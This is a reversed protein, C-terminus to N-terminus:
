VTGVSLVTRRPVCWIFIVRTQASSWPVAWKSSSSSGVLMDSYTGPLGDARVSRRGAVSTCTAMVGPRGRDHRHCATAM